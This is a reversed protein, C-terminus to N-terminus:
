ENSVQISGRVVEDADTREGVIRYVLSFMTQAYQDYLARWADANGQKVQELLGNPYTTTAAAPASYDPM